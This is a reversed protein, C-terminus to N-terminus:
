DTARFCGPATGCSASSPVYLMGPLTPPLPYSLTTLCLQPSPPELTTLLNGDLVSPRFRFPEGLSLLATVADGQGEGPREFPPPLSPCAEAPDAGSPPGQGRRPGGPPPLIAAAAASLPPPPPPPLRAEVKRGGPPARAAGVSGGGESVSNDEKAAVDWRQSMHLKYDVLVGLDRECTTYDLWTAGM